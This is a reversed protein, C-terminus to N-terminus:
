EAEFTPNEWKRYALLLELADNSIKQGAAQAMLESAAEEVGVVPYYRDRAFHVYKLVKLGDFWQFFRKVFAQPSSVHRRTEALKDEFNELYLFEGVPEPLNEPQHHYYEPVRQLFAKMDEFIRFDYCPYIGSENGLWENIARGTGFPVKDSPRPSPIVKTTLLERVRGEPIFKHLFYFDEGAKRRNMGGQRQYADSRVAMSSGVTHMAYPFGAYRLAQNYYRLFLEYRVIGEYVEPPFENGTLPHEFYISCAETRPHRDFLRQLEVLYNHAVEADADLCVILGGPHDIQEFRDVAEDMGIKRALGVGAHRPPLEPFHLFHYTHNRNAEAWNKAEHLTTLNQQHIKEPDSSSANIVTIVEVATPINTCAEISDLTRLLKEEDHCPIVIIVSLNKAPSTPIQRDCFRHKELYSLKSYITM